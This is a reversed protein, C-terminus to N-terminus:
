SIEEQLNLALLRELADEESIDTDWGYATAVAADLADHADALWQPRANYLNTLTRKKLEKAAAEDRPVPRKPYGPVPEDIWEVWEPPNLWRDRLEVLRRAAAAITLARTDNAYDAAPIDPSLGQPFPYPEFTTTPTYRPDNGKGLWTGLRLSWAEHFRSHLIGLTTDDDRAIAILASDPYVSTDIWVFLRHKAVRPTAIYRCLGSLAEWMAPRPREHRWWTDRVKPDHSKQREPMVREVVHSFPAEFLAAMARDMTAGFDVIWKGSPRRTLDRGNVWPKLVDANPRGNPNAPLRLWERALGGPVDFPGNRTGGMFAVNLNRPLTGAKTLDVTEATLDANIRAVNSGNLRATSGVNDGAICVLSVRVAAGDVVWPEDSWADCIAGHEVIRDLVPRNRGGRISNTAVLGARAIKGDAVLRQAKDFWHCVLDAEGHIRAGYLRQLSEVYAGGLTSRLLKGGLFPPNGIVVDAIPWEPESGDPNLIADRCEITDLPDLIPDRAGSFGNRRMWQIEGIWVSVRALEAAYPNIEIGKVNAPGVAPFARQLGMSEAELQVRHELDKLAHLALYLFNGSGCAPDLVTFARLKELFDRLTREAQGRQRTRGAISAAVDARELRLAIEARAKEWEKLWPRTVVPEIIQMIKDRDTYHAGLQSRKAPDLGREFLTGLISPDIESWDLASAELTTEIEARTLALADDSDFLGGNFWAVTEYGVRGGTAMKGFLERAMDEFEEPQRRALRLMRTFMDNPLLGVDEAFMCFVLRNVFHAVQQPDHGRARLAQALAAFATAARETLAQRSEGPRLREPDSMAWKLKDRVAADALDELAFEHRVSVSNTWNTYIRFRAMDSVILLPPNELALAYQRLQNFAADLDKHKGKYEWAFCHRKWVDAWGRGGTDKRAGREFSYRQGSPDDEAPTPEGLLRCLDIFHEQAASSEKLESARWKAIFEQANM